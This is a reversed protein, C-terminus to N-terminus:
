PLPTEPERLTKGDEPLAERGEPFGKKEEL